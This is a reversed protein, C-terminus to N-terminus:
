SITRITYKRGNLECSQGPTLGVLKQAIPAAAGLCFVTTGAVSLPGVPLGIFFWGNDTEVLSGNKATEGEAVGELLPILALQRNTEQLQVGIKDMEQQSMARSTEYKDGASSKTDNALGDKLDDLMNLMGAQKTYLIKKAEELIIFKNM